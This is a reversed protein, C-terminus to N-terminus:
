GAPRPPEPREGSAYRELGRAFQPDSLTPIGGREEIALGEPLRVGHAALASSRDAVLSARPYEAIREALAVARALAGGAPVVEQVLGIERARSADIRIGTEILWLASSLGVIRPLRQTGGDVLPIGWRRNLVGFEATDGAVRFDCWCALELGGAFCYGEIAAISPKGPDLGSFQLPGSTPDEGGAFLNAGDTLDAGSSFARGGRGSVLLVRTGVDDRIDLIAGHLLRATEADIANHVDPRNLWLITVAGRREVEVKASGRSPDTRM